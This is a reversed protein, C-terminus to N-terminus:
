KGATLASVTPLYFTTHFMICLTDDDDYDDDYDYDDDDAAAAARCDKNPRPRRSARHICHLFLVIHYNCTHVLLLM